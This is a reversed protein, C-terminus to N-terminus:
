ALLLPFDLIAQVLDFQLQATLRAVSWARFVVFPIFFRNDLNFLFILLLIGDLGDNKSNTSTGFIFILVFFFCSWIERKAPCYDKITWNKHVSHYITYLKSIIYYLGFYVIKAGIIYQLLAVYLVNIYIIYKPLEIM